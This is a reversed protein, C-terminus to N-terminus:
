KKFLFYGANFAALFCTLLLIAGACAHIIPNQFHFVPQFIAAGTAVLCYQLLNFDHWADDEVFITSSGPFKEGDAEIGNKWKNMWSVAPNWFSAKLYRFVSAVFHFEITDSVAKCLGALFFIICSIM